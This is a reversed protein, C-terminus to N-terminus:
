IIFKPVVYCYILKVRHHKAYHFLGVELRAFDMVSYCFSFVEAVHAHTGKHDFLWLDGLMKSPLDFLSIM